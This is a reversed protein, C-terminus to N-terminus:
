RVHGPQSLTQRTAEALERRVNYDGRVEKPADPLKENGIERYGNRRLFERHQARGEIRPAKGTKQDIAVAQYGAQDAQVFPACVQRKMPRSCCCPLDDMEAIKRYVDSRNGCHDCAIAYIPM